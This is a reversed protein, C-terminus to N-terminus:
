VAAHPPEAQTKRKRALAIEDIDLRLLRVTAVEPTIDGAKYLQRIRLRQDAPSTGSSELFTPDFM